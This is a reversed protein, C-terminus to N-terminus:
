HDIGGGHRRNVGASEARPFGRSLSERSTVGAGPSLKVKVGSLAQTITNLTKRNEKRRDATSTSLNYTRFSSNFFSEHVALNSREGLTRWANELGNAIDTGRSSVRGVPYRKPPKCKGRAGSLDLRHVQM